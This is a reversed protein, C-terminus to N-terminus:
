VLRERGAWYPLRLERKMVKGTTNRPLAGLFEVSQPVKYSGVRERAFAIVQEESVAAGEQVVVIAKVAERWRDDPVGIVAAELIAPHELLAEEIERPYINLGGSVIMDKIRDSIHLYGDDDFYDADGTHLWGRRITQATEEPLGFYSTMMQASWCIIEGVIGPAMNNGGADVVRVEAGSPRGCSQMRQRAKAGLHDEPSLFTVAGGTETLGYGTAFRCPFVEMVRTLLEFPM